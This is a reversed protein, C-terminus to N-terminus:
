RKASGSAALEILHSRTVGTYKAIDDASINPRRRRMQSVTREDDPKDPEQLRSFGSPARAHLDILYDEVKLGGKGQIIILGNEFKSGALDIAVTTMTASNIAFGVSRAAAVIADEIENSM